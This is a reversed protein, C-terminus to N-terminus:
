HNAKDADSAIDGFAWQYNDIQRRLADREGMVEFLKLELERDGKPWAWRLLSYVAIFPVAALMLVACLSVFLFAALAALVTAIPKM